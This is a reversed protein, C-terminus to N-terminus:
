VKKAALLSSPSQARPLNAGKSGLQLTEYVTLHTVQRGGANNQPPRRTSWFLRGAPFALVPLFQVWGTLIIEMRERPVRASWGLFVGARRWPQVTLHSATGARAPAHWSRTTHFRCWSVGRGWGSGRWKGGGMGEGGANIFLAPSTDAPWSTSDASRRQQDATFAVPRGEQNSLQWTVM